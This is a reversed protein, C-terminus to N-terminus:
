LRRRQGHAEECEGLVPIEISVREWRFLALCPALDKNSGGNIVKPLERIPATLAPKRIHVVDAGGIDVCSQQVVRTKGNAALHARAASLHIQHGLHMVLGLVM